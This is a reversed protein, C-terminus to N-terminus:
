DAAPCNNHKIAYQLLEANSKMDLIEMMRYKHFAVTGPKVNLVGAIEKMSFGEGLLQLIERQRLTLSEEPSKDKRTRRLYEVGDKDLVPSLYKLGRLVNRIATVLEEVATQKVVYGSAGRQFAEAAISPSMNMTMYVLKVSPMDRKLIEGADLGNLNPMSIDLVVVDPRLRSAADILERGDKVLGVVEYEPELVSKCAEALLTHDDAILLTPRHHRDM